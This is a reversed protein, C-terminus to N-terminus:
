EVTPAIGLVRRFAAVDSRLARYEESATEMQRIIGEVTRGYHTLWEALNEPTLNSMTLIPWASYGGPMANLAQVIKDKQKDDM